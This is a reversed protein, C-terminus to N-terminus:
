ASDNSGVSKAYKKKIRRAKRGLGRILRIDNYISYYIKGHTCWSSMQSLPSIAGGM